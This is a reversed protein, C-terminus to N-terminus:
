VVALPPGPGAGPDRSGRTDMTCDGEPIGGWCANSGLSLPFMGDTLPELLIAEFSLRPNSGEPSTFHAGEAFLSPRPIICGCFSFSPRLCLGSGRAGGGSKRPWFIALWGGLWLNRLGVPPKSLSARNFSFGLERDRSAGRGGNIFSLYSKGFGLM